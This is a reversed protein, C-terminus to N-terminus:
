GPMLLKETMTQVNWNGRALLRGYPCLGDDDELEYPNGLYDNIADRDLSLPRGRIM